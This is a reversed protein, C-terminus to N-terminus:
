GAFTLLWVTFAAGLGPVGDSIVEVEGQHRQVIESLLALGLGTGATGSERGAKGRFFREFLRPQEEPAIGPGTDSVGLGVWMQGETLRTQTTVTVRGGPPTYHLANTLLISLAQGLLGEDALVLPLNPQNELTLTLSRSAALPARDTVYQEALTNLNTPTPQVVIQGQDLRSLYLLDNIIRELRDTERALRDMYVDRKAPNSTLLGHYLRISTIPTRLEHTVNSVFLDQMREVEKLASIDHIHCVLGTVADGEKIPALAVEADFTAGNHRCFALALRSVEGQELVARLLGEFAQEHGPAALAAPFTGVITDLHYGFMQSFAPNVTEVAGDQGLMLIAAPSNSLIAEVREKAQLLESTRAAVAHELSARNDEQEQFFQANKIAVSAQQALGIFLRLDEETYLQDVPRSVIMAGIMQERFVLPSVLVNQDDDATGEVWYSRPDQRAHNVLLPENHAVCYGVLGQEISIRVYMAMEDYQGLYLIPRLTYRDDELRFITCEVASLLVVARRAIVDLLEELNLVSSLDRSTQLLTELERQRKHLAEEALRHETIDTTIVFRGIVQGDKRSVSSRNQICRRRGDPRVIWYELVDPLHYQNWGAGLIEKLRHYEEPAAVDLISVRMLEDRPYGFIECARDNVYVVQGQEIITLGDLINDAMRRFRDQSEKLAAETERRAQRQEAERLERQIAPLLRRLNGKTIYDSAGAIMTAVAVDEGMTGSVMIAPLDLGSKKLIELAALGNFRPMSYDAIVINWTHDQLAECLAEPTQVRHFVPEYGGRRLERVLLLADDESDEILLVRLPMAM